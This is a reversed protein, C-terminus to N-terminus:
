HPGRACELGYAAARAPGPAARMRPARSGPAAAACGFAFFTGVLINPRELGLAEMLEVIDEAIGLITVPEEAVSPDLATTFGSGPLDFAIVEQGEGVRQPPPAGPPPPRPEPRFLESPARSAVAEAVALLCASHLSAPCGGAHISSGM